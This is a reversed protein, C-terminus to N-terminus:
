LPTILLFAFVQMLAKVSKFNFVRSVKTFISLCSDNEESMAEQQQKIVTDVMFKCIHFKLDGFLEQMSRKKHKAM